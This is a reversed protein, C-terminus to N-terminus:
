DFRILGNPDAKPAAQYKHWLILCVMLTLRELVAGALNFNDRQIGLELFAFGRGGWTVVALAAGIKHLVSPPHPLVVILGLVAVYAWLVVAALAGDAVWLNVGVPSSGFVVVLTTAILLPFGRDELFEIM